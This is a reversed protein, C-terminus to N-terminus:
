NKKRSNEQEVRGRQQATLPKEINENNETNQNIQKLTERAKEASAFTFLFILLALPWDM